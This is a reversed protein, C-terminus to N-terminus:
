TARTLATPSTADNLTFTMLATTGDVKRVTMTTSVIAFDTLVQLIAYLAQERTSITGDAPVSDAMQTTFATDVETNVSAKMTASLDVGVTIAGLVAEVRGSILSNPTDGIWEGVDVRGGFHIAFTTTVDPATEWAPLIDAVKSAGTYAYIEREQGVGTGGTLLIRTSNYFSDIASAGADLTISTAAGAQATNSRISQLGTDAAFTARDIAADAIAAATIANAAVAGVSADIRGSVLAAPIRADLTTGTDVLIAATDVKVAAIDAAISAGAPTGLRSELDDVLDDLTTGTDVLIAAVDTRQADLDLGGADSIPLGGAADAAANPLATLGLRVGDEPNFDVLQITQPLVIMGTVTGIIDVTEAGTAFAADPVDLRYAGFGITLFGGDTHATTLAALTAETIAVVAAGERHYQLDIGATNFVVGTEPTGDTSDIIYITVTVDTSGKLIQRM